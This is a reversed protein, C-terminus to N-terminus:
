LARFWEAAFPVVQGDPMLLNWVLSEAGNTVIAPMSFDLYALGDPGCVSWFTAGARTRTRGLVADGTRYTTAHTEAASALDQRM